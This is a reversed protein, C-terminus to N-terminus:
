PLRHEKVSDWTIQAIDLRDRNRYVLHGGRVSYLAVKAGGACSAYEDKFSSRTLETRVPAGTCGNLRAWRELNGQAGVWDRSASYRVILDSLGHIETVSIPRPLAGTDTLLYLSSCGVAAIADSAEAALRQAMACGNSIGSAYIRRPDVVPHDVQLRAILARIFGVDDVAEDLARGCCSGFRGAGANWANYLGDPYVTVVGQDQGVRDLGSVAREDQGNSTYGHLGIVVPCDRVCTAPQVVDYRRLTGNHMLTYSVAPTAAQREAREPSGADASTDLRIQPQDAHPATSSQQPAVPATAPGVDSGGGGCAAVMLVTLTCTASIPYGRRQANRHSGRRAASRRSMATTSLRRSTHTTLRPWGEDEAKM